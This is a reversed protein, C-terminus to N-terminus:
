ISEGEIIKHEFIVQNEMPKGNIFSFIMNASTCAIDEIHYYVTALYPSVYKLIDINDFGMIGVDQPVRINKQRFYNLIDLAYIDSACLVATKNEKDLKYSDLTNVYKDSSVNIIEVHRRAETMADIYGKQRREQADMNISVNEVPRTFYLIRKYEKRLLTETAAKMAERDDIGVFPWRESIRNGITVIPINLSALYKDYEPGKNVSFLVIGSVKRHALQNICDIERQSDKNSLALNIFYGNKRAEEEIVSVIQAFFRNHLDFLVIGITMTTGKVLSQAIHDPKYNYTEIAQLVKDRTKQSIGGRGNLARDVTGRSIGCIKAIEKSTM